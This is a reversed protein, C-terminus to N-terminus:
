VGGACVERAPLSSQGNPPSAPSGWTSADGSRRPTEQAPVSSAVSGESQYWRPMGRPAKESLMLTVTLGVEAHPGADTEM